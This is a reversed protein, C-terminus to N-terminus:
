PTFSGRAPSLEGSKQVTSEQVQPSVSRPNTTAHYSKTHFNAARVRPTWALDLQAGLIISPLPKLTATDLAFLYPPFDRLASSRM